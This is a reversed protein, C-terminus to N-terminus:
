AAKNFASTLGSKLPETTDQALKQVLATLEKAQETSTEFQQRAQATTLEVAEAVSKVTMLKAFYDFASNTNARAQELVALGYDTTGKSANAYTTEMMGTTDEAAARIKDYGTKAQTLTKEAIERIAAPMEMAPIDFKPIDFKPMEFKPIDFKPLEVTAEVKPSEIKVTDAKPAELGPKGVKVKSTVVDAM